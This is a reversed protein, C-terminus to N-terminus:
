ESFVFERLIVDRCDEFYARTSFIGNKSIIAFVM